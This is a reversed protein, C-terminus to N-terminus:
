LLSKLFTNIEPGFYIMTFAVAFVVLSLGIAIILDKIREHNHEAELEKLRENYRSDISNIKQDQNM